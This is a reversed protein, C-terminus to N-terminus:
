ERAAHPPGDVDDGSPADGADPEAVVTGDGSVVVDGSHSFISRPSPSRPGSTPRSTARTAGSPVHSGMWWIAAVAARGVADCNLSNTSPASALFISAPWSLQFWVKVTCSAVLLRPLPSPDSAAVSGPVGTETSSVAVFIIEILSLVAASMSIPST